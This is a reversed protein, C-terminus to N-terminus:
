LWCWEDAYAAVIRVRQHDLCDMPVVKSFAWWLRDNIKFPRYAEAPISPIFQQLQMWRNELLVRRNKPCGGVRVKGM